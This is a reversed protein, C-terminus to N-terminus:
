ARARDGVVVAGLQVLGSGALDRAATLLSRASVGSYTVTLVRDQEGLPVLSECVDSVSRAALVLLDCNARLGSLDGNFANLREATILSGADVSSVFLRIQGEVSSAVSKLSGITMELSSNESLRLAQRLRPVDGTLDVVVLRLEHAAARSALASITQRVLADSRAGVGAIATVRVEYILHLVRPSVLSQTTAGARVDGVPVTGLLDAIEKSSYLRPRAREILFALCLAAILGIIGATLAAKSARTGTASGGTAYSGVSVIPQALASLSALQALQTRLQDAETATAGGRGSASALLTRLKTRADAIAAPYAANENRVYAAAYANAMQAASQPSTTKAVISIINSGDTSSSASVDELIESESARGRLSRSADEAVAPNLALAAATTLATTSTALNANSTQQIGLLSPLDLTNPALSVLSTASYHKRARHVLVFTAGAALIGTLLIMLWRRRIVRGFEALPSEQYNSESYASPLGADQYALHAEPPTSSLSFPSFVM